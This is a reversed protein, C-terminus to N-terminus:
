RTLRKLMLRVMAMSLLAEETEPLGEYDKALRRNRGEWAFTREVVWRRPQINLRGLTEPKDDCGLWVKKKPRSTVILKCGVNNRVWACFKSGRYGQDAWLCSLTPFQVKLKDLLRKAGERDSINAPLV